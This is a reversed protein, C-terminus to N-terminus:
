YVGDDPRQQEIQADEGRKKLEEESPRKFTGSFSQGKVPEKELEELKAKNADLESQSVEDSSKPLMAAPTTVFSRAMGTSVSQSVMSVSVNNTRASKAVLAETNKIIQGLM